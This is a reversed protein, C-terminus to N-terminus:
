GEASGAIIEGNDARMDWYWFGDESQLVTVKM